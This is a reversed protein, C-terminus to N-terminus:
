LDNKLFLFSFLLQFFWLKQSHKWNLNNYIYILIQELKWQKLPEYVLVIIHRIVLSSKLIYEVAKAHCVDWGYSRHYSGQVKRYLYPSILAQVIDWIQRYQSCKFGFKKEIIRRLRCFFFMCNIGYGDEYVPIFGTGKFLM